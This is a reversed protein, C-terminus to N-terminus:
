GTFVRIVAMIGGLVWSLGHLVGGLLGLLVIGVFLFTAVVLLNLCGDPLSEDKPKASSM